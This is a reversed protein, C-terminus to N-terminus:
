AQGPLRELLAMAAAPNATKHGSIVYIFVDRPKKPAAEGIPPLGGDGGEAWNVAAESWRTLDAPSYGAEPTETTGMLRAYVFDATM